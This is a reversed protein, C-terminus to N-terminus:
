PHSDIFSGYRGRFFVLPAMARGSSEAAIVECVAITHDGGPHEAWLRCDLWAVAEDLAPGGARAHWGVREFRDSGRASFARSVQEHHSAMVSICLGSAARVAPWTMSAGAPCILVLPPDLSVSTMSNVAMGVPTEADFAAVVCVGTPFHGLVRRLEQPPILTVISESIQLRDRYAV